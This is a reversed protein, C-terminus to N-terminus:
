RVALYMGGALAADGAKEDEGNVRGCSLMLDLHDAPYTPGTASRMFILALSASYRLDREPLRGLGLPSLSFALGTVWNVVLLSLPRNSAAGSTM